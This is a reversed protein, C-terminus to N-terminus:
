RSTRELFEASAGAIAATLADLLAGDGVHGAARLLGATLPEHANTM